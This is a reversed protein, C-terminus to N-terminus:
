EVDDGGGKNDSTKTTTEAATPKGGKGGKNVASGLFYGGVFTALMLIVATGKQMISIEWHFRFLVFHIWSVSRRKRTGSRSFVDYPRVATRGNWSASPARPDSSVTPSCTTPADIPFCRCRRM